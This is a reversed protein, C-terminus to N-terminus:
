DTDSPILPRLLFRPTELEIRFTDRWRDAVDL